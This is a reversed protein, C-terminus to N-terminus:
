LKLSTLHMEDGIQGKLYTNFALSIRTLTRESVTNEVCHRLNSPFIVIDGTNVPVVWKESNYDNFNETRVYLERMSERFFSISDCKEDASFYFTGSLFSNPHSHHHHNGGPQTFNLWSQTIYIQVDWFPDHVSKLYSNLAQQITDKIDTMPASNLAYREVSVVNGVNLYTNKGCEEVFSKEEDTLDRGLSFKFVPTPFLSLREIEKM